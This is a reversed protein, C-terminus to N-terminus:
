YLDMRFFEKKLDLEYLNNSFPMVDELENFNPKNIYIIKVWEM